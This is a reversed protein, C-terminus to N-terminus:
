QNKLKKLLNYTFHVGVTHDLNNQPQESNLDVLTQALDIVTKYKLNIAQHGEKVFAENIKEGISHSDVIVVKEKYPFKSCIQNLESILAQM